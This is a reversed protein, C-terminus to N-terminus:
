VVDLYALFRDRTKLEVGALTFSLGGLLEPSDVGGHKIKHLMKLEALRRFLLSNLNLAELLQTQSICHAYGPNGNGRLFLLM